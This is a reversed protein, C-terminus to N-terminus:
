PAGSFLRRQVVAETSLLKVGASAHIAAEFAINRWTSGNFDVFRIGCVGGGPGGFAFSDEILGDGTLGLKPQIIAKAAMQAAGAPASGYGAGSMHSVLWIPFQSKINIQSGIFYKFGPPFCVVGGTSVVSDVADQIAQTDDTSGTAAAGFDRVNAMPMTLSRRTGDSRTIFLDAGDFELAGPEPITLNAGATLKLPATNPAATGAAMHLRATPVSTSLGVRGANAITLYETTGANNQVSVINGSSAARMITAGGTGYTAGGTGGNGPQLIINGANGAPGGATNSGGAGTKLSLDGSSGAAAGITTGNGGAGTSITASGSTGALTGSSP